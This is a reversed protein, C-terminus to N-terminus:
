AEGQVEKALDSMIKRIAAINAILLEHASESTSEWYADEIMVCREQDPLEGTIVMRDSGTIVPFTLMIKAFQDNIVRVENVKFTELDNSVAM